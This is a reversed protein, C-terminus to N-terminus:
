IGLKVGVAESNRVSPRRQYVSCLIGSPDHNDNFQFLWKHSVEKM